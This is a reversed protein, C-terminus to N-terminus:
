ELILQEQLSPALNGGVGVAGIPQGEGTEHHWKAQQSVPKASSAGMLRDPWRTAPRTRASVTPARSLPRQSVASGGVVPVTPITHCSSPAQTCLALFLASQPVHRVSAHFGTNMAGTNVHRSYTAKRSSPTPVQCARVTGSADPNNAIAASAAPRAAVPPLRGASMPAI